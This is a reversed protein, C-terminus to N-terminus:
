EDSSTYIQVWTDGRVVVRHGRYAFEVALPEDTNTAVSGSFSNSLAETDIVEYLPPETIEETPKDETEAVACIITVVLSNADDPEFTM